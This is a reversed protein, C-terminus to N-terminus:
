LLLLGLGLLGVIEGGDIGYIGCYHLLVLQGSLAVLAELRALDLHHSEHLLHLSVLVVISAPM